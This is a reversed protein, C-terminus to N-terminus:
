RHVDYKNTNNYHPLKGYSEKKLNAYQIRDSFEFKSAYNTISAGMGQGPMNVNMPMTTAGASNFNYAAAPQSPTQSAITALLAQADFGVTPQV